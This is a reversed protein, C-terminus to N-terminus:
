IEKSIIDEYRHTINKYNFCSFDANDFSCKRNYIDLVFSKLNDFSNLDAAEYCFGAKKGLLHKIESDGYDGSVMVLLPKDFLMSEYFKGPLIGQNPYDNWTLVIICNSSSQINLAENRTVQGYNKAIDLMSFKRCADLFCEGQPGAYLLEIKNIDICNDRKLEDLAKLFPTIDRRGSYLTGVYAFVCKDNISKTEKKQIDEYDYGNTIVINKGNENLGLSNLYGKSVAVVYNAKKIVKKEIKRNLKYELKYNSNQAIPDRFDAIFVDTKRKIKLALSFSAVPGYSAIIINGEKSAIKKFIKKGKVAFDRDQWRSLFYALYHIIKKKYNHKKIKKINKQDYDSSAYHRRVIKSVFSYFLGHRVRFVSLGEVDKQLTPDIDCKEKQFLLSSNDSTIVDLDYKDYHLYKSIKTMRIAGMM